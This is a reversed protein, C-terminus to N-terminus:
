SKCEFDLVDTFKEVPISVIEAPTEMEKAISHKSFPTRGWVVRVSQFQGEAVSLGHDLHDSRIAVTERRV